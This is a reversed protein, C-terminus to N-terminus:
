AAREEDLRDLDDLLQRLLQPLQEIVKARRLWGRLRHEDALTEACFYLRPTGELELVIALRPSRRRSV